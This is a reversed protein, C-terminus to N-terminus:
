EDLVNDRITITITREVTKEGDRRFKNNGFIANVLSEQVNANGDKLAIPQQAQKTKTISPSTAALYQGRKLLSEDKSLITEKLAKKDMTKIQEMSLRYRAFLLQELYDLQPRFVNLEGEKVRLIRSVLDHLQVAYSEFYEPQNGYQDQINDLVPMLEAFTALKSNIEADIFQQSRHYYQLSKRPNVQHEQDIRRTDIAQKILPKKAESLISQYAVKRASDEAGDQSPGSAIRYIKAAPLPKDSKMWSSYDRIMKRTLEVRGELPWLKLDAM